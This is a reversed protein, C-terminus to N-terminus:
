ALELEENDTRVISNAKPVEKVDEKKNKRDFLKEIGTKISAVATGIGFFSFPHKFLNALPLKEAARAEIETKEIQGTLEIIEKLKGSITTPDITGDGFKINILASCDHEGGTVAIGNAVDRIVRYQGDDDLTLNFKKLLEQYQQSNKDIKLSDLYNILDGKTIKQQMVKDIFEDIDKIGFKELEEKIKLYDTNLKGNEVKSVLFEVTEQNEFPSNNSSIRDALSTFGGVAERLDDGSIIDKNKILNSILKQQELSLNEFKSYDM